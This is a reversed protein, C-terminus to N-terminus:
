KSEASHQCHMPFAITLLCQQLRLLIWVLCYTAGFQVGPRQIRWWWVGVTPCPHPLWNWKLINKIFCYFNNMKNCRSGQICTKKINQTVFHFLCLANRSYVLLYQRSSFCNPSQAALQVLQKKWPVGGKHLLVFSLCHSNLSLYRVFKKKVIFLILGSSWPFCIVSNTALSLHQIKLSFQIKTM